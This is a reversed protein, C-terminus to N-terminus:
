KILDHENNLWMMNNIQRMWLKWQDVVENPTLNLKTVAKYNLNWTDNFDPLM